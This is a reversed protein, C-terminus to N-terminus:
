ARDRMRPSRRKLACQNNHEVPYHPFAHRYCVSNVAKLLVHISRKQQQQQAQPTTPFAKAKDVFGCAQRADFRKVRGTERNEGPM